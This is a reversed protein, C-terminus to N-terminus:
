RRINELKTFLRYDTSKLWFGPALDPSRRGTPMRDGTGIPKGRTHTELRGETALTM